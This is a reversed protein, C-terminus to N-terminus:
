NLVAQWSWLATSLATFRREWPCLLIFSLYVDWDQKHIIQIPHGELRRRRHKTRTIHLCMAM